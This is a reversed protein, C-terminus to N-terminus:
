REPRKAPPKREPNARPRALVRGLPNKEIHQRPKEQQRGTIIEALALVQHREPRERVHQARRAPGGAFIRGRTHSRRRRSRDVEAAQACPL